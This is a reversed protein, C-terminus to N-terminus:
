LKVRGQKPMGYVTAHPLQIGAQQCVRTELYPPKVFTGATSAFAGLTMCASLGCSNRQIFPPCTWAAQRGLPKASKSAAWAGGKYVAIVRVLLATQTIGTVVHRHQLTWTGDMIKSVPKSLQLALM